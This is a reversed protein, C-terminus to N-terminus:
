EELTHIPRFVAPTPEGAVVETYNSEGFRGDCSAVESDVDSGSDAEVTVGCLGLGLEQRGEDSPVCRPRLEPIRGFSRRSCLAFSAFHRVEDDDDDNGELRAKIAANLQTGGRPKRGPSWMPESMWTHSPSVPSGGDRCSEARATSYGGCACRESWASRPTAASKGSCSMNTDPKGLATPALCLAPVGSPRGSEGAVSSVDDGDSPAAGDVCSCMDLACLEASIGLASGFAQSEFHLDSHASAVSYLRRRTTHRSKGNGTKPVVSLSASTGDEAEPASHTCGM